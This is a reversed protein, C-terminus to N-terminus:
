DTARVKKKKRDYVAVMSATKHGGADQKNGDFDSIGRAKLDHFTFPKGKYKKKLRGWASSFADDTVPQGNDDAFIYLSDIKRKHSTAVHIANRLRDSWLTITDNSGKVRRTDLGEPLLDKKKLDRIEIRRMRCLYAVEMM